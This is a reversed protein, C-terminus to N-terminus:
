RSNLWHEQFWRWDTAINSYGNTGTGDSYAYVAAGDFYGASNDGRKSLDALAAKVGSSAFVINEATNTHWKSNPFAPFGIMVKPHNTPPPHQADNNWWKGSVARLVNTTQYEMWDQYESGIKIGSDYTMACLLDLHPAMDYYYQPSWVWESNNTGYKESTFSTLKNGLGGAAFKAHVQDFFSVLSDFVNDAPGCPEYDLQIGDFARNAGAIYSNPANTSVLKGCEEVMNARVSPNTVDVKPRNANLWALVKFHYNNREEWGNLTNLFNVANSVRGKLKGTPDISGVNLFWYSVHYSDKMLAAVQPVNTWYEAESLYAYDLWTGNNTYWAAPSRNSSDGTGALLWLPWLLGILSVSRMTGLRKRTMALRKHM